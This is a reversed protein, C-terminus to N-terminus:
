YTRLQLRQYDDGEYPAREVRIRKSGDAATTIEVVRVLSYIPLDDVMQRLLEVSFWIVDGVEVISRDESM